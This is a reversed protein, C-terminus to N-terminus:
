RRRSRRSQSSRRPLEHLELATIVRDQRRVIARLVGDLEGIASLEGSTDVTIASAPGPFGRAGALDLDARQGECASLARGTRQVILAAPLPPIGSRVDDPVTM